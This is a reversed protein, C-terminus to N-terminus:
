ILLWGLYAVYLALMLGGERRSVRWGSRALLVLLVASAAMVWIDFRIIEARM